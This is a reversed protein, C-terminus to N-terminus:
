LISLDWSGRNFPHKANKGDISHRDQTTVPALTSSNGIAAESLAVQGPYQAQPFYPVANETTVM